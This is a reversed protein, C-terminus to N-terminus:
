GVSRTKELRTLHGNMEELHKNFGSLKEELTVIFKAVMLEVKSDSGSEEQPTAGKGESAVGKKAQPVISDDKALPVSISDSAHEYVETM